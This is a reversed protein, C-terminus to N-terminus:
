CMEYFYRMFSQRLEQFPSGSLPNPGLPPRISDERDWGRDYPIQWITTNLFPSMLIMILQGRGGRGLVYQELVRIKFGLAGVPTDFSGGRATIAVRQSLQQDFM